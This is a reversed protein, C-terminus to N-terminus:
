KRKRFSTTSGEPVILIDAGLRRIVCGSLTIKCNSSLKDLASELSNLRPQYDNKGIKQILCSLLKLRIDYPQDFLFSYEFRAYDKKIVESMLQDIIKDLTERTRSLNQVALLIREDSIGLKDNLFHRNKRIKVRTYKEDDNMEDSFYKIKNKSCYEELESRFVKLLPRVIKVGDRISEARMAALGYVGSGRGLNMLFTEIQDDAQHATLLIDIDNENCYDMMLKYRATRAASELGSEPKDGHWYFVKCPVNLKDSIECVYKTEVDAVDRLGHNVHLAVIDMKIKKLWHLLCVSDAGGSVAVAIKSEKYKEMFIVFNKNM